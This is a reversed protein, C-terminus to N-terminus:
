EGGEGSLTERGPTPHVPTDVGVVSKWKLGEEILVMWSSIDTILWKYYPLVHQTKLTCFNIIFIESNLSTLTPSISM